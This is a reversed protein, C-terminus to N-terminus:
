LQGAMRYDGQRVTIKMKDCYELLPIAHKRTMSWKDRIEAVKRQPSQEFLERLETLLQNLVDSSILFGKGIDTLVSQQTAFRVLSDVASKSIELREALEKTTPPMRSERFSELIETMHLQQKKSLVTEDSAIAIMNNSKVLRKGRLAQDIAQRAANISGYSRGREALSHEEIWANESDQSQRALLEIVNTEIRDVLASSVIEQDGARAFMGQDIGSTVCDALTTAPIGLQFELETSDIRAEGCYDIWAALRHLPPSNSLLRGLELQRRRPRASHPLSTLVRGGAFSGVPYPKRFLCFQGFTAVVPEALDVVVVGSENGQLQGVGSVRAERATTGIHLQITAPMKFTSADHFMDMDILLRKTARATSPTVLEDGRSLRESGDGTVNIATRRGAISKEAPVGHVELERVRLTSSTGAQEVADGVCVEGNWITGAVVTGRGPISLVRDIPMRFLRSKPPERNGVLDCLRQKFNEVGVGSVTSLQAVPFDSFGQESLFWELEEKLEDCVSSDVLDIRSIVVLLKSTGLAKLIAAHELTQEQIGQDAAVVLLGIDVHSVGALLNGIYKQHGPADILAFEHEGYRFSAFGLDITIGRRKEEPNSDTDVGTLKKVLSTKGHDIHGTVAVISYTM